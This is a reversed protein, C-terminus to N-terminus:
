SQEELAGRDNEYRMITSGCVHKEEDSYKSSSSHWAVDRADKVGVQYEGTKSHAWQDLRCM